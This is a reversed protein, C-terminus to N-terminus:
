LCYHKKFCGRKWLGRMEEEASEIWFPALVPHCLAQRYNKPDPELPSIGALGDADTIARSVVGYTWAAM